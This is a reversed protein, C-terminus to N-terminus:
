DILILILSRDLQLEGVWYPISQDVYIHTAWLGDVTNQKEM